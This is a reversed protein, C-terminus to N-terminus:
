EGDEVSEYPPGLEASYQFSAFALQKQGALRFPTRGQPVQVRRAREIDWRPQSTDDDDDDHVAVGDNRSRARKEAALAARKTRLQSAIQIVCWRTTGFFTGLDPVNCM